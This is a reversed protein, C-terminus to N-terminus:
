AIVLEDTNRVKFVNKRIFTDNTSITLDNNKKFNPKGKALDFTIEEGNYLKFYIDRISCNMEQAKIRVAHDSIGKLRFHECTDGKSNCQILDYYAKKGVIITEIARPEYGEEALEKPVSFDSHFQGMYKGILETGYLRKYERQLKPVDAYNLHMSDTDQYLVILGLDEALCMVRNMIRKSWDLILSGIHCLNSDNDIDNKLKVLYKNCDKIPTASDLVAFQRHVLKMLDDKSNVFQKEYKRPKLTCKGYVSNMILKITEQLPNKEQKYKLRTDYLSKIMQGIEDNTGNDWYIAGELEFEIKHYKILDELKINTVYVTRGVWLRDDFYAIDNIKISMIPMSRHLGVKTITIAMFAADCEKLFDWNLMLDNAIEPEGIPIKAMQYMASPYLSCADFDVIELRPELRSQAYYIRQEGSTDRYKIQNSTVWIKWNNYSRCAGGQVTQQIFDRTINQLKVTGNFVNSNFAYREAISSASVIRDIDLPILHDKSIELIQDRFANYGLALIRVDQKCYFESYKRYDFYETNYILRLQEINQKFTIQLEPKLYQLADQIKWYTSTMNNIRYLEYPYAEKRINQLDFIKPFKSLPHSILTYSCKLLISKGRFKIHGSMFRNNHLIINKTIEVEPHRVVFRYDYDLNHAIMISQDPIAELMTETCDIGWAFEIDKNDIKYAVCYAQHENQDNSKTDTEYDFFCIHYRNKSLIQKIYSDIHEDLINLIVYDYTWKEEYRGSMHGLHIWEERTCLTNIDVMSEIEKIKFTIPINFTELVSENLELIATQLRELTLDEHKFIQFGDYINTYLFSEIIDKEIFQNVAFELIRNEEITLISNLYSLPNKIKTARNDFYRKMKSKDVILIARHNTKVEAVYKTFSDTVVHSEIFKSVIDFGGNLVQLYLQKIKNRNLQKSPNKNIITNICLERNDVYFKLWTTDLGYKTRWIYEAITPHANVMDIDYYYDRCLLGRFLRSELQISINKTNKRGCPQYVYQTIQFGHDDIAENLRDLVQKVNIKYDELSKANLSDRTNYNYKVNALKDVINPIKLLTNLKYKNQFELAINTVDASKEDSEIRSQKIQEVQQKFQDDSFAPNLLLAKLRKNELYRSDKNKNSPSDCEEDNEAKEEVHPASHFLVLSPINKSKRDENPRTFIKTFPSKVEEKQVTPKEWKIQKLKPVLNLGLSRLTCYLKQDRAFKLVTQVFRYPTITANSKRQPNGSSKLIWIKKWNNLHKIKQYNKIAFHTIHIDIDNRFYHDDLLGIKLVPPNNIKQKPKYTITRTHNTTEQDYKLEIVCEINESIFALHRKKVQKTNILSKLIAIREEGGPLSELQPELAVLLCPVGKLYEDTQSRNYIGLESTDFDWDMIKHWNGGAIWHGGANETPEVLRVNVGDSVLLDLANQENSDLGIAATDTAIDRFAEILDLLNNPRYYYYIRRDIGERILQFSITVSTDYLFRDYIAQLFYNIYLAKSGVDRWDLVLDNNPDIEQNVYDDIERYNRNINTGLVYNALEDMEIDNDLDDEEEDLEDLLDEWSDDQEQAYPLSDEMDIDDDDLDFNYSGGSLLNRNNANNNFNQNNNSNNSEQSLQKHTSIHTEYRKKQKFTKPCHPCSYIRNLNICTMNDKHRKLTYQRTFTKKCNDCTFM